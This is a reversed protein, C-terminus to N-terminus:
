WFTLIQEFKNKKQWDPFSCASGVRFFCVGKSAHLLIWLDCKEVNTHQLVDTKLNQSPFSWSQKSLVCVPLCVSKFGKSMRVSLLPFFTLYLFHCVSFCVILCVPLCASLCASLCVSSCPSVCAFRDCVVGLCVRVYVRVYVCMIVCVCWCGYDSANEQCIYGFTYSSCQIYNM